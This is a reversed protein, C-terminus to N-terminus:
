IRGTKELLERILQMGSESEPELAMAFNSRQMRRTWNSSRRLAQFTQFSIQAGASRHIMVIAIWSESHFLANM